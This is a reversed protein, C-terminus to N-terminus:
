KGTNFLKPKPKDASVPVAQGGSKTKAELEAVRGRLTKNEKESVLYALKMAYPYDGGDRVTLAAIEAGFEDMIKVFEERSLPKAEPAAEQAQETAKEGEPASEAPEEPKVKPASEAPVPTEDKKAEPTEPAQPEKVGADELQESNTRENAMTHGKGNQERYARYREMFGDVKDGYRALAEVISPNAQIAGWVEPHLDLFETIQGAITEQSFRSFLGDNAAPDDVCDCAHLAGCEVYDREVIEVKAPDVEKGNDDVWRFMAEGSESILREGKDNTAWQHYVKQGKTTKRYYRGPTFVISTGFMDPENKALGLVYDHLNGNPTDKAENSLFLDAVATFAKSGDDRTTTETRFNKHRGLFTGLATSCMNPHGFRAKLGQKRENGFRVVTEIFEADLSVGHGKADGETCVKVGEIIGAEHDIRGSPAAKLYGTSLWRPQENM